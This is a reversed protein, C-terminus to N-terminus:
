EGEVLRIAQRARTAASAMDTPGAVPSTLAYLCDTLAAYLDPAAAILRANAPPDGTLGGYDPVAAVDVGLVFGTGSSTVLIHPVEATDLADGFGSRTGESRRGVRWPGPTFPAAGTKQDTM